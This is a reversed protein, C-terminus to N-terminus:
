PRKAGFRRYEDVLLDKRYLTHTSGCEIIVRAGKRKAAQASRLSQSNWGHFATCGIIEIARATVFDFYAKRLPRYVPRPLFFLLKAPNGLLALVKDSPLDTKNGYCVAKNLCGAEILALAAHYSVKGLGPEGLRTAISYILGSRAM